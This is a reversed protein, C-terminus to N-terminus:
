HAATVEAEIGLQQTDYLQRYRGNRAMLEQHSGEEVIQGHDFVLIRDVARLTSLRHAVILTTRGDMLRDLADQILAESVSDLSSTAEDLVLIPADALIARAIAVRQREGGSLKVGREGVLTEYGQSLQSIFGHAHAQRAADMVDALSAQMRGYRINEALSRHFLVPEQPVLAIRSRLSSQSIGRLDQGDVEISGDTVDYLRQLLKICTSKGSGSAGVLGVKEGARIHLNFNSYIRQSQGAYAFDVQNFRIEGREIRAPRAGPADDVSLRMRQLRVVDELENSAKQLNRVNNAVQRISGSILFYATLGYAVDAAQAQGQQWLWVPMGIIAAMNCLVLVNMVATMNQMRTWNTLTTSHWLRTAQALREDERNEAGFSKIAAICTIADALTGSLASDQLNAKRNTPAIYHLSLTIAVAIYLAVSVGSALGMLPHQWVMLGLSGTLLLATPMLGSIVTDSFGDFAWMGRTLKRVTSGAFTNAHWDTGARQVKAFTDQLLQEMHAITESCLKRYGIQYLVFYGAATALFTGMMLGARNINNDQVSQAIERAILPLAVDCGIATGIGGSIIAVALPTRRWYRWVLRTIERFSVPDEQQRHRDENETEQM